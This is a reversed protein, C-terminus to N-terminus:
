WLILWSNGYCSTAGLREEKFDLLYLAKKESTIKLYRNLYRLYTLPEGGQPALGGLVSSSFLRTIKEEKRLPTSVVKEEELEAEM